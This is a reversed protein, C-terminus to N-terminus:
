RSALVTLTRLYNVQGYDIAHPRADRVLDIADDADVAHGSDLLLVASITGARGLGGKCHVLVSADADLWQQWQRRLEILRDHSDPSPPTGDVIPFHSWTMGRAEVERGLNSVRLEGLEETEVLSIVHTWGEDRIKDLDLALDRRWHVGSAAHDQHKGPCLTLGVRGPRAPRLPIDAVRLPSSESTLIGPV